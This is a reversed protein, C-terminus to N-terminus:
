PLTNRLPQGHRPPCGPFSIAIQKTSRACFSIACRPSVSSGDPSRIFNEAGFAGSRVGIVTGGDNIGTASTQEYPMASTPVGYDLITYQNSSLDLIAALNGDVYGFFSAGPHFAPRKFRRARSLEPRESSVKGTLLSLFILFDIVGADSCRAWTRAIRRSAGRRIYGAAEVLATTQGM